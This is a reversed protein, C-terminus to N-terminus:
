MHGVLILDQLQPYPPSYLLYVLQSYKRLCYPTYTRYFSITIICNAPAVVSILNGATVDLVAPNLEPVTNPSPFSISTVAPVAATQGNTLVYYNGTCSFVAVKTGTPINFHQETNAVLVLVAVTDAQQRSVYNAAFKGINQM